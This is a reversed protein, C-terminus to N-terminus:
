MAYCVLSWDKDASNHCGWVECAYDKDQVASILQYIGVTDRVCPQDFFYHIQLRAEVLPLVTAVGGVGASVYM